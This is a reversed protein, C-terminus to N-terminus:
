KGNKDNIRPLTGVIIDDDKILCQGASRIKDSFLERIFVFLAMILFGAALFSVRKKWLSVMGNDALSAKVASSLVQVADMGSMDRIEEIYANAVANVVSVAENPDTSYVTITVGSDSSSVVYSTMNLVERYTLETSGMVSIAREAVKQSKILSTYNSLKETVSTSGVYESNMPSYLSTSASYMNDVSNNLTTLTGAIFFVISLAFCKMLNKKIMLFSSIIDEIGIVMTYKM